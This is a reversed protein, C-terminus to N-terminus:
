ACCSGGDPRARDHLLHARELTHRGTPTIFYGKSSDAPTERRVPESLRAAMQRQKKAGRQWLKVQFSQGVAVGPPCVVTMPGNETKARFRGGPEVGAPVVVDVKKPTGSRNVPGTVISFPFM